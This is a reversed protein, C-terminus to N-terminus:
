PYHVIKLLVELNPEDRPKIVSSQDDAILEDTSSLDDFCYDKIFKKLKCM